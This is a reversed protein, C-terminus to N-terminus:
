RSSAPLTVTFCAGLVEGQDDTRNSARIQGGRATVDGIRNPIKAPLSALEIHKFSPSKM